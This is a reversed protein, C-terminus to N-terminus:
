TMENAAESVFVLQISQFLRFVSRLQMWMVWSFHQETQREFIMWIQQLIATALYRMGDLVPISVEWEAQNAIMLLLMEYRMPDDIWGMLIEGQNSLITAAPDEGAREIEAVQWCATGKRFLDLMNTPPLRVLNKKSAGTPLSLLDGSVSRPWFSVSENFFEDLVRNSDSLDSMNCIDQGQLRRVRVEWQLIVKARQTPSIMQWCLSTSLSDVTLKSIYSWSLLM